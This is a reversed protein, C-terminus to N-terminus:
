YLKPRPPVSGYVRQYRGLRKGMSSDSPSPPRVDNSPSLYGNPYHSGLAPTTLFGQLPDTPLHHLHNLHLQTSPGPSPIQGLHFRSNDILAVHKMEQSNQDLELKPLVPGNLNGNIGELSFHQPHAAPSLGTDTPSWKEGTPPLPSVHFVDYSSNSRSKRECKGFPFRQFAKRFICQKRRSPAREAAM